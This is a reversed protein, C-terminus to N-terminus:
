LWGLLGLIKHIIKHIEMDVRSDDDSNARKLDYTMTDNYFHIYVSEKDPFPVGEEQSYWTLELRGNSMEITWGYEVLSKLYDYM